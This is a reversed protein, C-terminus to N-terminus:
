WHVTLKILKIKKVKIKDLKIKHFPRMEKSLNKM